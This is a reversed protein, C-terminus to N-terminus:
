GSGNAKLCTEGHQWDAYVEHNALVMAAGSMTYELAKSDSRGLTFETRQLPAVAVDLPWVSDARARGAVWPMHTYEFGYGAVRSRAQYAGAIEDAVRWHPDHGCFVVEHGVDHAWRLAAYALAVDAAHSVSGMWGVRLRDSEPKAPPWDDPDVHNGCVHIYQAGGLERFAKHYEDALRRTTVILGDFCLLARLHSERMERANARRLSLRQGDGDAVRDFGDVATFNDDLEAVVRPVGAFKMALAHAARVQDPRTFVAAGEHEPYAADGEDTLTWPFASDDNPRSLVRAGIEQPIYAVQCRDGERAGRGAVMHRRRRPDRVVDRRHDNRDSRLGRPRHCRGASSRLRRGDCSAANRLIREAQEDPMDYEQRYRGDDYVIKV